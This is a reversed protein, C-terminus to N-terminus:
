AQSAHQAPSLQWALICVKAKAKDFRGAAGPKLDWVAHWSVEALSESFRVVDAVQAEDLAAYRLGPTKDFLDALQERLKTLRTHCDFAGDEAYLVDEALRPFQWEPLMELWSLELATDSAPFQQPPKKLSDPDRWTPSTNLGSVRIDKGVSEYHLIPMKDLVGLGHWTPQEMPGSM